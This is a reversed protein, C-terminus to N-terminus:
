VTNRNFMCSQYMATLNVLLSINKSIFSMLNVGINQTVITSNSTYLCDFCVYYTSMIM